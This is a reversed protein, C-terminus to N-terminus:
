FPIDDPTESSAPAPPPPAIHEKEKPVYCQLWGDFKVPLAELKIALGGNKSEMVVGCKTWRTKEEGTTKDKWNEEYIKGIVTVEYGKVYGTGTEVGVSLLNADGNADYGENNNIDLNERLRVNLGSVYYDGSEDFTRRALTKEIQAYETKDLLFQVKGDVLVLLPIFEGDDTTADGKTTGDRKAM